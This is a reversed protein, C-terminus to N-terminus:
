IIFMGDGYSFLRYKKSIAERYAKQTLNKGAFAWVLALLSSKPTHFNTILGDVFKFDYGPTIFLSTKGQLPKQSNDSFVTELVRVTTTGCAIIRRSSKKAKILRKFTKQDVQYYEEHINHDAVEETRIPAFTGLGVHLTVKEIQVNNKTLKKILRKTFHLGATPAAASGVQQAYVTQYDKKDKSTANRKLYPPLPMEGYKFLYEMLEKKSKNIKITAPKQGKVRGELGHGFCLKTNIPIKKSLIEWVQPRVEELFVVEFPKGNENRGYIRAPFVKSQNFVLVDGPRLYDGIKKFCTHSLDETERSVVLLRAKDRPYTPKKAILSKPYNYDLEQTKV